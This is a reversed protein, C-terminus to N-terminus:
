IRVFSSFIDGEQKRDAHLPVWKVVLKIYKM